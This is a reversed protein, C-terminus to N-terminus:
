HINGIHENKAIECMYEFSPVEHSWWQNDRKPRGDHEFPVRITNGAKRRYSEYPFVFYYQKQTLNETIVALITRTHGKISIYAGLKRKGTVYWKELSTAGHKIQHGSVLDIEPTNKSCRGIGSHKSVSLEALEGIDILRKEELLAIAKSLPMTATLQDEFIVEYLKNM